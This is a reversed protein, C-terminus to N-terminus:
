DEEDFMRYYQLRRYEALADSAAEEESTLEGGDTGTLRQTSLIPLEQQWSGIAEQWSALPVRAASLLEAGLYNVSTERGSDSGIDYNAWILYPVQYRLDNEEETLNKGSKGQLKWVPEVVVDNPQHDGFFILITPEKWESLTTILQELATDSLKMLSLYRDLIRSDCDEAHINVDFNEFDEFYGSHNQMTVAFAFLPTDSSKNELEELIKSFCSEDDIYKRIRNAGPFDKNYLFRDFGLDKYVVDRNWGNANFPHIAVTEYGFEKLHTALSTKHGFIYQQYPVSGAPLFRMTNGTLFEYETNATNGGKVSVNLTGTITNEAGEQLSHVFPMYDENVQFDGLMSPDSFAEDMIVIINPTLVPEEKPQDALLLAEEGASYDEPEEVHLYRLDMLFSPILGDKKSMYFPTFLTNDLHLAAIFRDNHLVRTYGALGLILLAAPLLRTLVIGRVGSGMIHKKRSNKPELRRRRLILFISVATLILFFILCVAADPSPVYSFDGAVSAATKLSYIDWPVIPNSRFEVVYYNLLGILMFLLDGTLCAIGIRHTLSLILLYIMEYFLLNWLAIPLTMIEFPNHTFCEVLLFAAAPSLLLVLVSFVGYASSGTQPSEKTRRKNPIKKGQAM